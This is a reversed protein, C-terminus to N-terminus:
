IEAAEWGLNASESLVVAIGGCKNRWNHISTGGGVIEEEVLLLAASTSVTRHINKTSIFLPVHSVFSSSICPDTM